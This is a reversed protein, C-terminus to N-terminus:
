IIMAFKASTTLSFELKESQLSMASEEVLFRSLEKWNMLWLVSWARFEQTAVEPM